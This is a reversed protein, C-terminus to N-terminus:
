ITLGNTNFWKGIENACWMEVVEVQPALFSAMGDAFAHFAPLHEPSVATLVPIGAALAEAIVPRFGRGEAETKGFKNVIVLDAGGQALAAQVRGVATELQDTDLRCGQASPGLDQSIRLAGTDPLVHLTMDCSGGKGAEDTTQVAGVLRLGRAQLLQAVDHLVRDGLGREEVMVVGLM